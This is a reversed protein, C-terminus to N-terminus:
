AREKEPSWACNEWSVITDIERKPPQKKRLQYHKVAWVDGDSWRVLYAQGYELSQTHNNRFFRDQLGELIECELGNRETSLVYNQGICVDGVKFNSM